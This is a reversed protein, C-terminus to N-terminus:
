ENVPRKAAWTVARVIMGKLPETYEPHPSFCLVRGEGYTGAIMAPTGPMVGGPVNKAMDSRYHALVTYPAVGRPDKAPGLLPGNAYRVSQLGQYNGLIKRGEDTLEIDVPGSGRAWHKSDVTDAAVLGLSWPYGATALYAGACSAVYGGGRRVFAKVNAAGAAALSKAQGSGSGGCFVVVDFPKLSDARALEVPGVYTYEIIDAARDLSAPYASLGPTTASGGGAYIAVKIRPSAPDILRWPDGTIMGAQVLVAHAAHRFLRTREGPSAAGRRATFYLDVAVPATVAEPRQGAALPTTGADLLTNLRMLLMEADIGSTTLAGPPSEKSTTGKAVRLSVVATPAATQIIASTTAGNEATAAVVKGASLSWTAIQRLAIRGSVDGEAAENLLLVTPGPRGSDLVVELVPASSLRAAVAIATLLILFARNRAHCNM